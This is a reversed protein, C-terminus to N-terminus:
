AGARKVNPEGSLKAELVICVFLLLVMITGLLPILMAVRVGWIQALYGILGPALLGGTVAISFIGNYFGPHYYTFRHRIKEVVMPYISAFGGGLFVIGMGAGFRNTTFFLLVCGFLALLISSMLLTGHSVRKLVSGALLRGVLLSAWYFALTFLAAQPSIGLRRILFLPLWGAVSWENGFQFFLLLSLLVAGPNRLDEIVQRVPTQRTVALPAFKGRSCIVLYCAPIVALVSLITGASYIPYLSAIALAALFCGAGFLTGAFTVTGARDQQYLPSIAHFVAANLVGASLGIGLLGVPRWFSWAPLSAAALLLLAAAATTNASCLAFATGKRRVLLPGTKVAILFGGGLSLFYNGIVMFQSDLHHGWVPLLPGLLSMLVGFVFFGSLARRADAGESTPVRAAAKSGSLHFALVPITAGWRKRKHFVPLDLDIRFPIAQCM